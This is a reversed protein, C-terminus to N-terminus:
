STCNYWVHVTHEYHQLSIYETQCINWIYQVHRYAYTMWWAVPTGPVTHYYSAHDSDIELSDRWCMQRTREFEIVYPQNRALYGQREIWYLIYLPRCISHIHRWWLLIKGHWFCASWLPITCSHDCCRCALLTGSGLLGRVFWRLFPPTYTLFKTMSVLGPIEVIKNRATSISRSSGLSPGLSQLLHSGAEDHTSASAFDSTM